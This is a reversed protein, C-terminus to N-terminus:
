FVNQFVQDLEKACVLQLIQLRILYRGFSTKLRERFNFSSCNNVLVSLAERVDQDTVDIPKVSHHRPDSELIWNDKDIEEM